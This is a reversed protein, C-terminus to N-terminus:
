KHHSPHQHWRIRNRNILSPESNVVFKTPTCGTPEGSITRTLKSGSNTRNRISTQQVQESHSQYGTQSFRLGLEFQNLFILGLGLRVASGNLFPKVPRNLRSGLWQWNRCVSVYVCICLHMCAPILHLLILLLVHLLSM